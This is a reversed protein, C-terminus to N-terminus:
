QKKTQAIKLHETKNQNSFILTIARREFWSKRTKTANETGQGPSKHWEWYDTQIKDQEAQKGGTHIHVLTTVISSNRVEIRYRSFYRYEIGNEIGPLSFFQWLMLPDFEKKKKSLYLM